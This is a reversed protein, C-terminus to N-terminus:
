GPDARKVWRRKWVWFLGFLVYLGLMAAHRHPSYPAVALVAGANVFFIGALARHVFLTAAQRSGNPTERMAIASRLASILLTAIVVSNLWSLPDKWRLFLFLLPVLLCPSAALVLDRRTYDMDELESVATLAAVYVGLLGAGFLLEPHTWIAETGQAAAVGLLFNGSRCAGMLLNGLFRVQKGGGDYALVLLLLTVVVYGCELAVGIALGTAALLACLLTVELRTVRGSPLPKHAANRRDKKEDFLDNAAMGLWYICISAAAVGALTHRPTAHEGAFALALMYGAYSDAVATPTLFVRVVQLYASFRQLM